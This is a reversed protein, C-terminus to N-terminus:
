GEWRRQDKAHFVTELVLSATTLLSSDPDGQVRDAVCRDPLRPLLHHPLLRIEAWPPLGSRAGGPVLLGPQPGFCGGLDVGAARGIGATSLCSLLTLLTGEVCHTLFQPSPSTLYAM